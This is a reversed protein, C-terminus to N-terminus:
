TTRVWASGVANADAPGGAIAKKAEGSLGVAWGLEPLGSAGKRFRAEETPTVRASVSSSSPM